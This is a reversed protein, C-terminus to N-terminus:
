HLKHHVLWSVGGAVGWWLVLSLLSVITTNVLKHTGLLWANATAMLFLLASWLLLRRRSAQRTKKKKHCISIASSFIDVAAYIMLAFALTGGAIFGLYYAWFGTTEPAPLSLASAIALLFSLGLIQRKTPRKVASDGPM